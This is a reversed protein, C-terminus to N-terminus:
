TWGRLVQHSGHSKKRCRHETQKERGTSRSGSRIGVSGACAGRGGSGAFIRRDDINILLGHGGQFPRGLIEPRANALAEGHGIQLARGHIVTGIPIRLARFRELLEGAAGSKSKGANKGKKTSM